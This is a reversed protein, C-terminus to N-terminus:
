GPAASRRIHHFAMGARRAAEGDADDRDGIVLCENVAMGLRHAALLYGDPHPKLRKPGQEEGSAVVADFLHDAGLAALKATAPYDSVLATKGGASRFREISRILERRRFVRLWKGPRRVMWESITAAVVDHSCSLRCAAAALQSEYPSEAHEETSGNRRLLEHEQRFARVVRLARWNGAALECAMALRVPAARYLTGDLDILWARFATAGPRGAEHGRLAKGAAPAAADGDAPTSASANREFLEAQTM